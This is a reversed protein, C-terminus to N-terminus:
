RFPNVKRIDPRRGVIRTQELFDYLCNYAKTRALIEAKVHEAPQNTDVTSMDTLPEIFEVIIKEVSAWEPDSFFKKYLGDSILPKNM